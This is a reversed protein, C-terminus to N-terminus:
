VHTGDTTSVLEDIVTTAYSGPPLAFDLHLEGGHFQWLMSDVRLRLSRRDADVRAKCLAEILERHPELAAAELQAAMGLPSFGTNGPLPGTPHLDFERCRQVQQPDGADCLFVSHTGDLMVVDGELLQDWNNQHVRQALVQNFLFSRVASLYISRKARPLKGGEVLWRAGKWANDGAHGFRQPGFYNPLGRLRVHELRQLLEGADGQINRVVIRFRNGTLVGRKLKRQHRVAQIITAEPIKWEHWSSETAAPLPISFWQTTVAYRDKLGAYGVDRAACGAAVALQGAIWDTNAGRKTVQVWLHDGEGSPSVQALEDVRFDEPHMRLEGKALPPGLYRPWRPLVRLANFDM